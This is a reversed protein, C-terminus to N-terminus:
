LLLAQDRQIHACSEIISQIKALQEPSVQSENEDYEVMNLIAISQEKDRQRRV